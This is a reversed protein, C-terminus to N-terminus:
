QTQKCKSYQQRYSKTIQKITPDISLFWRENKPLEYFQANLTNVSTFLFLILIRIMILSYVKNPQMLEAKFQHGVLKLDHLNEIKYLFEISYTALCAWKKKNLKLYNQKYM